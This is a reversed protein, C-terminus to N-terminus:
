RLLLNRIRDVHRRNTGFAIQGCIVYDKAGTAIPENSPRGRLTEVALLAFCIAELQGVAIGYSESSTIACTPLNRKFLELLFLNKAGGGAVIIETPRARPFVYRKYAESTIRAVAFTITSVADEVCLQDFEHQYRKLFHPGFEEWGASKPPPLSFYPHSSLEEILKQHPKGKRALLGNRDWLLKESTRWKVITDIWMNAPGTDFAMEVKKNKLLTVNGIGGFNQVTITKGNKGFLLRHSHPALPAGQGGIAIDATRYNGIVTIGTRIALRSLDSVQITTGINKGLFRFPKPAHVLTQGHVGIVDIDSLRINTKQALKRVVQNALESWRAALLASEKLLNKESIEKVTQVWEKSFRKYVHGLPEIKYDGNKFQLKLLVADMGDLSTGSMMGIALLTNM